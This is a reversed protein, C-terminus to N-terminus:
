DSLGTVTPEFILHVANFEVFTAMWAVVLPYFGM